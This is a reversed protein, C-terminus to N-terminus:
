SGGLAASLVIEDNKTREAAGSPRRSYSKPAKQESLQGQPGSPTRNRRKKNTWSGRLAVLVPLLPKQGEPRVRTVRWSRFSANQTKAPLLPPPFPTYLSSPLSHPHLHISKTTFPSPSHPFSSPHIPHHIPHHINHHIFLLILHHSSPSLTISTALHILTAISIISSQDLHIIFLPSITGPPLSYSPNLHCPPHLSSSSCPHPYLVSQSPRSPSPLVPTTTQSPTNPFM